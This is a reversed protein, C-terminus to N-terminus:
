FRVETAFLGKSQYKKTEKEEVEESLKIKEELKKQMIEKYEGKQEEPRKRM